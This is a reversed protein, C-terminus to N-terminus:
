LRLENEELTKVAHRLALQTNVRARVVAPTIPKTIYDIAGLELGAAEEAPNSQGTVFIIPIDDTEPQSKLQRCIDYGNMDPLIVDLLILDPHYKTCTVLAQAGSTAMLIQHEHEFLANLIQVNVPQDDVILLTSRPIKQTLLRNIQM